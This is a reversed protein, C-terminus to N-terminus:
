DTSWKEGDMVQVINISWDHADGNITVFDEAKLDKSKTVAEELNAAEVEIQSLVVIRSTISFTKRKISKPM